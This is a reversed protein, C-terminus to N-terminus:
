PSATIRLGQGALANAAGIEVGGLGDAGGRAGGQQGAAVGVADADEARQPRCALDTDGVLFLGDRLDELRATVGRGDVALPVEAM